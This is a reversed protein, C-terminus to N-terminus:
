DAVIRCTDGPESSALFVSSAVSATWTSDASTVTSPCTIRNIIGGSEAPTTVTSGYVLLISIDAKRDNHHVYTRLLCRHIQGWLLTFLFICFIPYFPRKRNIGSTISTISHSTPTSQVASLVSSIQKKALIRQSVTNM